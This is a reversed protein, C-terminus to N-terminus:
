INRKINIVRRIMILASMREDLISTPAERSKISFVDRNVRTNIINVMKIEPTINCFSVTRQKIIMTNQM